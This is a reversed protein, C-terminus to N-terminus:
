RLYGHITKSNREKCFNKEGSSSLLVLKRQKDLRQKKVTRYRAKLINAILNIRWKGLRPKATERSLMSM